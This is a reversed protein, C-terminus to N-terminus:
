IKVDEGVHVCPSELRDLCRFSYSNRTPYFALYYSKLLQLDGKEIIFRGIGMMKKGEQRYQEIEPPFLDDEPLGVKSDIVLRATSNVHGQNDESFLIRAYDDFSDNDLAINPYLKPYWQKRFQNVRKLQELSNVLSLSNPICLIKDM